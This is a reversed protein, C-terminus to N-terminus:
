QSSHIRKLVRSGASERLIFFISFSYENLNGLGFLERASLEQGFRVTADTKFTQRNMLRGGLDFFRQSGREIETLNQIVCYILM